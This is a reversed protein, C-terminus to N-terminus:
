IREIRGRKNERELLEILQQPEDVIDDAGARILTERSRYGWTVGACDVGANRAATVDVDSDGTYLTTERQSGLQKLAEYINDPEPKKKREMNDGIATDVDEGFYFRCMEKTAEDPKNSVVGVKIGMEKLRKLLDPIHEYPSTHNRMNKLYIERFQTLCRLVETESTGQPLSREMLKKAGDGIFERVEERTRQRYGEKLLVANVSEHLDDLTNLLTGDLDFLITDYRM